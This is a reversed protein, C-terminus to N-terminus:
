QQELSGSLPTDFASDGSLSQGLSARLTIRGSLGSSQQRTRNARTSSMRFHTTKMIQQGFDRRVPPSVSAQLPFTAKGSLLGSSRIEVRLHLSGVWLHLRGEIRGAVPKTTTPPAMGPSPGLHSTEGEAGLSDRPSRGLFGGLLRLGSLRLSLLHGPIASSGQPGGSRM